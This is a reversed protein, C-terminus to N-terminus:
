QDAETLRVIASVLLEPDLPKTFSAAFGALRTRDRRGWSTSATLAIVPTTRHAERVRQLFASGDFDPISTDSVIIDVRVRGLLGLAQDASSAVAVLAGARRLFHDFIEGVDQDDTVILVCRGALPASAAHGM